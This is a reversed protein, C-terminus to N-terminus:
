AKLLQSVIARCACLILLVSACLSSVYNGANAHLFIIVPLPEEDPQETTATARKKVSIFPFFLCKLLVGDSTQIYRELFGDLAKGDDQTMKDKRTFMISKTFGYDQPARIKDLDHEDSGSGAFNAHGSGMSLKPIYILKRQNLILVSIILLIIMVAAIVIKGLLIFGAWLYLLFWFASLDM